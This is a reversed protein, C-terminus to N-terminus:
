NESLALELEKRKWLLLFAGVVHPDFRLGSDEAIKQMAMKTTLKEQPSRGSTMSDFTDAVALIRSGLPIDTGKIGFSGGTGDYREYIYLLLNCAPLFLPITSLAKWVLNLRKKMEVGVEDSSLGLQEVIDHKSFALSIDKLLAAHYLVQRENDTLKFERAITLTYKAVRKASELDFLNKNYMSQIMDRCITLIAESTALQESQQQLLRDKLIELRNNFDDALFLSRNCLVALEQVKGSLREYADKVAPPVQEVLSAVLHQINKLTDRAEKRSIDMALQLTNVESMWSQWKKPITVQYTTGTRKESTVELKGGLGRVLIRAPYLENKSIEPQATDIQGQLLVNLARPSFYHDPNNIEVNIDENKEKLRIQLHSELPSSLIENRVIYLLSQSLSRKDGMIRDIDGVVEVDVKIGRQEAPVQVQEMVWNLTSEIDVEDFLTGASLGESKALNAVNEVTRVLHTYNGRLSNINNVQEQSLNEAKISELSRLCDKMKTLPIELEGTLFGLWALMGQMARLEEKSAQIIDRRAITLPPEIGNVKLDFYCNSEPSRRLYEMQQSANETVELHHLFARKQNTVVAIHISVIPLQERSDAPSELAAHGKQLHEETFLAKIRRNFDAIIRRCLTRAKWPTSIVVFKDGSFHGALDDPNGFLRVAESVIDALLRIVWDGQAYGYARNVAKFDHMTIYIAAFTKKEGILRAIEKSVQMRNALGTQPDINVMREKHMLYGQVLAVVEKPDFPKTIYRVAIDEVKTTQNRKKSKASILIIPIDGTAEKIQHCIESCEIDPLAPDLIIIDSKDHHIKHLAEAGSQASVVELNSHALNVELIRTIEPDSNIVLVKGAKQTTTGRVIMKPIRQAYSKLSCYRDVLLIM